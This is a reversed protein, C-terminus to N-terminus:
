QEAADDSIFAAQQALLDGAYNAFIGHTYSTPHIDNWVDGSFACCAWPPV